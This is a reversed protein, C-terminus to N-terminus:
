ILEMVDDLLNDTKIQIKEPEIKHVDLDNMNITENSITLKPEEYDSDYDDDSEEELKRQNWRENSIEELRDITKPAEIIENPTEKILYPNEENNYEKVIDNNNFKIIQKINEEEKEVPKEELLEVPKEEKEVPKEEKEVPKEEKEVPKEEKEVLKEELLEAPKEEEKKGGNQEILDKEIIEGTPELIEEVDEKVEEVDEELTEDLYARLITEVPMNNRIVELICDKVILEIERLNKQKQLPIADKELLYVNKYIKRAVDIYVKHIFDNLKPIDINIKKQKKGVRVCTLIKLQTIHVCTLLDELYNCNTQKIIRETENNILEQNWKTVRGLFNQFTMLYKEEEDNDICLKLAEKYISYIGQIICPTLKSVLLSSYENKTDNLGSIQFDDM